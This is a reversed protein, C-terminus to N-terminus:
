DAASCSVGTGGLLQVNGLTVDFEYSTKGDYPFAWQLGLSQGPSASSVPMGGALDTWSVSGDAVDISTSPAVCSGFPNEKDTATCTGKKDAPVAEWPYDENTQLQFIMQNSTGASGKLEFSVGTYESLDACGIFFLGVGYGYDDVTGTVHIGDTATDRTLTKGFTTVGGTFTGKGWSATTAQSFETWSGCTVAGPKCVFGEAGGATGASGASSAGASSGGAGATDTGASGAAGARDADSSSCASVFSAFLCGAALLKTIM